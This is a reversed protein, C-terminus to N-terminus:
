FIRPDPPARRRRKASTIRQGHRRNCSVHAPWLNGPDWVAGGNDRAEIHDLDFPMGPELPYGCKSCPVAEAAIIQRWKARLSMTKRGGWAGTM